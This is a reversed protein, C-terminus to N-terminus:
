RVRSMLRADCFGADEGVRGAVDRCKRVVTSVELIGSYRAAPGLRSTHVVSSAVCAHNSDINNLLGGGPSVVLWSTLCHHSRARECDGIPM